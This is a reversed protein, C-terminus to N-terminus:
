DCYDISTYPCAHLCPMCHISTYLGPPTCAHAFIPMHRISMKKEAHIDHHAPLIRLHGISIELLLYGERERELLLYIELLLSGEKDRVAAPIGRQRQISVELLLNGEKDRVFFCTIPTFTPLSRQHRTMYLAYHKEHTIARERRKSMGLGHTEGQPPRIAAARRTTLHAARNAVLLQRLM